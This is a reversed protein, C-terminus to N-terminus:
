DWHLPNITMKAKVTEKQIKMSLFLKPEFKHQCPFIIKQYM